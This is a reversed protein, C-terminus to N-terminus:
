VPLHRYRLLSAGTACNGSVPHPLSERHSMRRDMRSRIRGAAGARGGCAGLELVVDRRILRKEVLEIALKQSRLAVVFPLLDPVLNRNCDAHQFVRFGAVLASHEQGL